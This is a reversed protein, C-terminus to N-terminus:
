RVFVSQVVNLLLPEPLTVLTAAVTGANKLTAPEGIVLEPVSAIEYLPVAKGTAFPPVPNVATPVDPLTKVDFPLAHTLEAGTLLLM